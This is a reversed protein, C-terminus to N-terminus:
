EPDPWVANIRHSRPTTQKAISIMSMNRVPRTPPSALEIILRIM